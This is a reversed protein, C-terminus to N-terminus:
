RLRAVSICCPSHKDINKDRELKEVIADTVFDRLSTNNDVASIKLAKYIKHNVDIALRHVGDYKREV